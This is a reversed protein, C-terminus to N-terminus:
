KGVFCGVRVAINKGMVVSFGNDFVVAYVGRKGSVDVSGVVVGKQSNVKSPPVIYTSQPRGVPMPSHGVTSSHPTTASLLPSAATSSPSSSLLDVSPGAEHQPQVHPQHGNGAATSSSASSSQVPPAHALVAQRTAALRSALKAAVASKPALAAAAQLAAAGVAGAAVAAVASHPQGVPDTSTSEARRGMHPSTSGSGVPSPGDSGGPTKVAAALRESLSPRKSLATGSDDASLTGESRARPPKPPPLQEVDVEATAPAVVEEQWPNHTPDARLAAFDSSKRPRPPVAPRPPPADPEDLIARREKEGGAAGELSDRRGTVTAETTEAMADALVAVGPEDKVLDGVEKAEQAVLREAEESDSVYETTGASAVTRFSEEPGGMGHEDSTDEVLLLPPVVGSGREGRDRSEFPIYLVGFMIDYGGTSFEWRLVGQEEDEGGTDLSGDWVVFFRSLAKRPIGIEGGYWGVGVRWGRMPGEQVPVDVGTVAVRYAVSKNVKKAVNTGDWVLVFTGDPLSSVLTDGRVPRAHAHVTALPFLIRTASEGIQYPLLAVVGEKGEDEGVKPRFLVSFQVGADVRCAWEWRLAVCSGFRSRVFPVEVRVIDRAPVIKEMLELRDFEGADPPLLGSSSGLGADGGGVDMQAGASAFALSKGWTTARGALSRKSSTVTSATDDLIITAPASVPTVSGNAVAPTAPAGLGSEEEELPSVGGVFGADEEEERREREKEYESDDESVEGSGAHVLPANVGGAGGVGLWGGVRKGKLYTQAASGLYSRLKEIRKADGDGGGGGSLLSAGVGFLKGKRAALPPTGERAAAMSTLNVLEEIFGKVKRIGDTSIDLRSIDPALQSVVTIKCSNEPDTPIPEIYYGYLYVNSQPHTPPPTSSHGISAAIPASTPGASGALSGNPPTGTGPSESLDGATKERGLTMNSAAKRIPVPASRTSMGSRVSLNDESAITNLSGEKETELDGEKEVGVPMSAVSATDSGKGEVGRELVENKAGDTIVGGVSRMVVIYPELMHVPIGEGAAAAAEMLSAPVEQMRRKVEFVTYEKTQKGFQFSAQRITRSDDVAFLTFLSIM